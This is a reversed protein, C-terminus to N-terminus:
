LEEDHKKKKLEVTRKMPAQVASSSQIRSSSGLRRKLEERNSRNNGNSSETTREMPRRIRTDRSMEGLVQKSQRTITRRIRPSNSTVTTSSRRSEIISRQRKRRSSSSSSHGVGFSFSLGPSSQASEKRQSNRGKNTKKRKRKGPVKKSTEGWGEEGFCEEDSDSWDGYGYKEALEAVGFTNAAEEIPVADGPYAGLIRSSVGSNAGVARLRGLVGGGGDKDSGKVRVDKRTRASSKSERAAEIVSQSRKKKSSTLKISRDSSSSAKNTGISDSPKADLHDKEEEEDTIDINANGSLAQVVWDEEEEEKETDASTDVEEESIQKKERLPAIIDEFMKAEDAYKGLNYKKMFATSLHAYKGSKVGGKVHKLKDLAVRDMEKKQEKSVKKGGVSQGSAFAAYQSHVGRPKERTRMAPGRNSPEPIFSVVIRHLEPLYRHVMESIIITSAALARGVYGQSLLFRQLSNPPPSPRLPSFGATNSEQIITGKETDIEEKDELNQSKEKNGDNEEIQSIEEDLGEEITEIEKGGETVENEESIETIGASTDASIIEEEVPESKKKKKRKRRKTPNSQKTTTNIEQLEDNSIEKDTMRTKFISSTHDDDDSVGAILREVYADLEADNDSAGGRLNTTVIIESPRATQHCPTLSPSKAFSSTPLSTQESKIIQLLVLLAIM